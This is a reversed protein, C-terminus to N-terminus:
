NGAATLDIMQGAQLPLVQGQIQQFLPILPDVGGIQRVVEPTVHPARSVYYDGNVKIRYFLEEPVDAARSVFREMGEKQLDVTENEALHREGHVSIQFVLRSQDINAMGKLQIPTITPDSTPLELGDLTCRYLIGPESTNM